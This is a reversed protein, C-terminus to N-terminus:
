VLAHLFEFPDNALELIRMGGRRRGRGNARGRLFRGRGDGARVAREDDHGVRIVGLEEAGSGDGPPAGLAPLHAVDEDRTPVLTRVIGGHVRLFEGGDAFLLLACGATDEAHFLAEEEAVGITERDVFM